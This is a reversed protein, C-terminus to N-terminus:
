YQKKKKKNKDKDEKKVPPTYPISLDFTQEVDWNARVDIDGSFYIVEESYKKELFNGPDYKNNKNTDYIARLSFLAPDLLNFEVATNKEVYESAVIEGTSKLM